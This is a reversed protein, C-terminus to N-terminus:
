DLTKIYLNGLSLTQLTSLTENLELLIINDEMEENTIYIVADSKGKSLEFLLKDILFSITSSCSKLNKLQKETLTISKM